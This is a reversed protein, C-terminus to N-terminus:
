DLDEPALKDMAEGIARHLDGVEHIGFLAFQNAHVQRTAGNPQRLTLLLERPQSQTQTLQLMLRAGFAEALEVAPSAGKTRRVHAEVLLAADLRIQSYPVDMKQDREIFPPAVFSASMRDLRANRADVPMERACKSASLAATLRQRAAQYRQADTPAVPKERGAGAWAHTTVLLCVATALIVRSTM